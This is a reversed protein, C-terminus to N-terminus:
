KKPPLKDPDFMEPPFNKDYQVKTLFREQVMDGNHYRSISLPTPLGQITHYDEYEEV